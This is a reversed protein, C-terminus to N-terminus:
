PINALTSQWEGDEDDDGADDNKEEGGDGEGKEEGGGGWGM